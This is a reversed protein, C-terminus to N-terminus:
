YLKIAELQRAVSRDQKEGGSDRLYADVILGPQLTAPPPVYNTSLNINNNVEPNQCGNILLIRSNKLTLIQSERLFLRLGLQRRRM